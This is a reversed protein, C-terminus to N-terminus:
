DISISNELEFLFRQGKTTLWLQKERRLRPNIEAVVLDLGAVSEREWASLRHCIRTATASSVHLHHQLDIPSCGPHQAIFLFGALTQAPMESDMGRVVSMLGQLRNLCSASEVRDNEPGRSQRPQVRTIQLNDRRLNLPNEDLHNVREGKKANVILRAVIHSGSAPGVRIQRPSSACVWWNNAFGRQALREYDTALLRAHCAAGSVPLLVIQQGDEDVTHLTARPTQGSAQRTKNKRNPVEHVLEFDLNSTNM